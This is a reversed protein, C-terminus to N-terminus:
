DYRLPLCDHALEFDFFTRTTNSAHLKLCCDLFRNSGVQREHALPGVVLLVVYYVFEQAERHGLVPLKLGVLLGKSGRTRFSFLSSGSRQCSRPTYRWAVAPHGHRFWTRAPARLLRLMTQPRFDRNFISELAKTRFRNRSETPSLTAVPKTTLDTIWIGSLSGSSRYAANSRGAIYWAKM